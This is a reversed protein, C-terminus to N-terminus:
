ADAVTAGIQKLRSLVQKYQVLEPRGELYPFIRLFGLVGGLEPIRNVYGNPNKSANHFMARAKRRYTRSPAASSNVVVGTVTQRGFASAIRTKKENINLRFGAALRIKLYGLAAQIASRDEGSVTIDDAYRSYQLARERCYVEMEVDLDFLVANSLIPSTPAGQPLVGGNTCIKAIAVSEFPNFGNKMLLAIIQEESVSGFFNEIDANGVYKQGVHGTANSVISRGMSYSHVADHVRLNDLVYDALFWQISKLFIRPSEIIRVGGTAKKIPFSRYHEQQQRSIKWILQASLGVCLGIGVYDFIFDRGGAKEAEARTQFSLLTPFTDRSVRKPGTTFAFQRSIRPWYARGGAFRLGFATRVLKNPARGKIDGSTDVAPSVGALEKDFERSTIFRTRHSDRLLYARFKDRKKRVEPTLYLNGLLTLSYFPSNAEGVRIVRKADCQWELFKSFEDAPPLEGGEGFIRGLFGRVEDANAPQLVGVALLAMQANIIKKM